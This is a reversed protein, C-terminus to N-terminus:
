KRVLNGSSFFTDSIDGARFSCATIEWRKGMIGGSRQSSGAGLQGDSDGGM